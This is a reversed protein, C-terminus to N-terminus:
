EAGRELAAVDHATTVGARFLDVAQEKPLGTGVLDRLAVETLKHQDYLDLTFRPARAWEGATVRHTRKCRACRYPGLPKSASRKPTGDREM